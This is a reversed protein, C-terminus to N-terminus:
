FVHLLYMIGINLYTSYLLKFWTSSYVGERNSWETKDVIHKVASCQIHMHITYSPDIDLLSVCSYYIHTSGVAGLSAVDKNQRAREANRREHNRGCAKSSRWSILFWCVQYSSPTVYARYTLIKKLKGGTKLHRDNIPTKECNYLWVDQGIWMFNPTKLYM